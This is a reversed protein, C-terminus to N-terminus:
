QGAAEGSKLARLVKEPTIPLDTVRVGVADWIANAIAAAVPVYPLEGVSKAGFPGDDDLEEIISPEINPVDVATPMRYDMLSDNTVRGGDFTIRETLAFGLGSAAGGQIQGEVGLPNIVQGVDQAAVLRLVRIDGTERDVEVQAVQSAYTHGLFSTGAIGETYSPDTAPMLRDQSASGILPGKGKSMVLSSIAVAKEPSGKVRVQGNVLELDDAKAELQDAARELLQSRVNEAAMKVTLGATFTQRSAGSPGEYPTADTDSYNRSISSMPLGLVESAIQVLTTHTGSGHEVAGTILVATGDENMKLAASSPGTGSHWEGCAMGWGIGEKKPRERWRSVEAARELAQRISLNHLKQGTPSIDGDVFANKLRLDVPDMGLSNAMTEMMSEMAFVVQPSGPARCNGFSTKNTYVCYGDLRVHPIRYVGQLAATKGVVRPGTDAYAGSDLVVRGELAVLTGDRKIGVKMEILSPHRPHVCAFEQRWSLEMRVPRGTRRALLSALPELAASGKGGFDGGLYPTIVRVQSMPIKLAQSLEQRARFAGKVTTWATVKGSPDVSALSTHPEIYGQHVAPTQFREEFVLDAEAWGQAMDGHHIKVHTCVNGYRATKFNIAYSLLDEHIIPAEPKMAELPDFVAPMEEYEVQILDLAEEAIDPDTAAVAAVYEGRFRVKGTAIVPQDRLLPGLRVGLTDHETIVGRVGPLRLARSVDIHAIHAHSLPSLLVKGHLMRPVHIDGTYIASGTAKDLADVRPLAKGVTQYAM